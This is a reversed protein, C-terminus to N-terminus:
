ILSFITTIVGVSMIARELVMMDTAVNIKGSRKENM